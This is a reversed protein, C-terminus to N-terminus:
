VCHLPIFPLSCDAILKRKYGIAFGYAIQSDNESGHAYLYGMINVSPDPHYLQYDGHQIYFSTISYRGYIGEVWFIGDLMSLTQNGLVVGKLADDPAVVTLYNQMIRKENNPDLEFLTSFTMSNTFHDNPTIVMMFADGTPYDNSANPKAGTNYQIVMCPKSCSVTFIDGSNKVEVSLYETSNLKHSLEFDYYSSIQIDTNDYGPVVRLIYSANPYRRGLIRGVIFETGWESVPPVAGMLMDCYGIEYPIEACEHGVIVSIPRNSKIRYGTFDGDVAYAEITEDEQICEDFLTHSINEEVHSATVCTDNYASVVLFASRRRDHPRTHGKVSLVYFETSGSTLPFLRMADGSSHQALAAQVHVHSDTEIRFVDSPTYVM